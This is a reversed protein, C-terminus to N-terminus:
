RYLKLVDKIPKRCMPCVSPPTRQCAIACKYCLSSHGCDYFACDVPRAYCILCKEGGGSAPRSADEKEKVEATAGVDAALSADADDENDDNDDDDQNTDESAEEPNEEDYLAPDGPTFVGLFDREKILGSLPVITAHRYRTRFLQRDGYRGTGTGVRNDCEVGVMEMEVGQITLQGLWRVTGAESEDRHLWVVREGLSVNGMTLLSGFENQFFSHLLLYICCIM